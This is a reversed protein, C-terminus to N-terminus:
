KDGENINAKSSLCHNLLKATRFSYIMFWLIALSLNFDIIVTIRFTNYLVIDSFDTRNLVFIVVQKM